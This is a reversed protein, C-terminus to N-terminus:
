AEEEQLWKAFARRVSTNSDGATMTGLQMYNNNAWKNVRYLGPNWGSHLLLWSSGDDCAVLWNLYPSGRSLKQVRM